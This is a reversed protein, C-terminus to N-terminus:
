KKQKDPAVISELKSDLASGRLNTALIVGRGDILWNTPISMVGYKTAAESSWYKLDSVHWPWVLKDKTIAAMWAAKNMDLSVSYVTFGKEGGKFQLDRYKNYAAVLNPNEMRCPGCWSAWFDILVIKGKLSSLSIVSDQPNKYSLAPAKNGPNLGELAEPPTEWSPATTKQPTHCSFLIGGVIIIAFIRNKM